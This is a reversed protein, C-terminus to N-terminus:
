PHWFLRSKFLHGPYAAFDMEERQSSVSCPRDTSVAGAAAAREPSGRGRWAAAHFGQWAGPLAAPGQTSSFCLLCLNQVLIGLTRWSLKLAGHYWRACFRVRPLSACASFFGRRSGVPLSLYTLCLM